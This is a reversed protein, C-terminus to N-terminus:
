KRWGRPRATLGREGFMAGVVDTEKTSDTPSRAVVSGEYFVAIQDTLTLLEPIETSLFIIAVGDRAVNSFLGYLEQKTNADVGRLPDNLVLVKPGM